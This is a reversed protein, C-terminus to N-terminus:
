ILYKTKNESFKYVVSSNHIIRVEMNYMWEKINKFYTLLVCRKGYIKELM